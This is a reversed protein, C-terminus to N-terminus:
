LSCAVLVLAERTVLPALAARRRVGRAPPGIGLWVFVEGEVTSGAVPCPLFALAASPRPRCIILAHPGLLPRLM